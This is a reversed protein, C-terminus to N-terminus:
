LKPNPYPVPAATVDIIWDHLSVSGRIALVIANNQRDLIVAHAPIKGDQRYETIDNLDYIGCYKGITVPIPDSRRIGYKDEHKLMHNKGYVSLAYKAFIKIDALRKRLDRDLPNIPIEWFNERVM